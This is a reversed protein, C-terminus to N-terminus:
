NDESTAAIGSAAGIIVVTTGDLDAM